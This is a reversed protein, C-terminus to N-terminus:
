PKGGVVAILWGVFGSLAILVVEKVTGFVPAQGQQIGQHKLRFETLEQLVQIQKCEHGAIELTRVRSDINQQMDKFVAFIETINTQGTKIIGVDIAITNIKEYLATLDDM